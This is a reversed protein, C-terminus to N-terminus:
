NANLNTVDIFTVNNERFMAVEGSHFPFNVNIKGTTCVAYM